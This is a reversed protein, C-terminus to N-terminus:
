WIMLNLYRISKAKLGKGLQTLLGALSYYKIDHCIPLKQFQQKNNPKTHHLNWIRLPGLM